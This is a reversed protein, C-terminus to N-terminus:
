GGSKGEIQSVEERLPQTTDSPQNHGSILDIHEANESLASDSVAHYVFGKLLEQVYSNQSEYTLLIDDLYARRIEGDNVNKDLRLLVGSLHIEDEIRKIKDPFKIAFRELCQITIDTWDESHQRIFDLLVGLIIGLQTRKIGNHQTSSLGRIKCAFDRIQEFHVNDNKLDKLDKILSLTLKEEGSYNRWNWTENANDRKAKFWKTFFQVLRQISLLWFHEDMQKIYLLDDKDSSKDKDSLKQFTYGIVIGGITKVDEVSLDDIKIPTHQHESKEKGSLSNIKKSKGNIYITSDSDRWDGGWDSLYFTKTIVCEQKLELKLYEKFTILVYQHVEELNLYAKFENNIIDKYSPTDYGEQMLWMPREYKKKEEENKKSFNEKLYSAFPNLYYDGKEHLFVKAFETNLLDQIIRKTDENLEGFVNEVAKSDNATPKLSVVHSLIISLVKNCNESIQEGSHLSIRESHNESKITVSLDNRNENTEITFRLEKLINLVNKSETLVLCRQGLLIGLKAFLEEGAFSQMEIRSINPYLLLTENVIEVLDEAKQVYDRNVWLVGQPPCKGGEKIEWQQSDPFVSPMVKKLWDHLRKIEQPTPRM